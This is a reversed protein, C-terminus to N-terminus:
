RAFCGPYDPDGRPGTHATERVAVLMALYFARSARLLIMSQALEPALPTLGADDSMTDENKTGEKAM